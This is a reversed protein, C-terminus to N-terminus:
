NERITKITFLVLDAFQVYYNEVDSYGSSHGEVWAMEWVKAQIELNQNPLYTDALAQEFEKEIARMAERYQKRNSPDYRIVRTKNYFNNAIM